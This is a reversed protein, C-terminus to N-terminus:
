ISLPYVNGVKLDPHDPTPKTYVCVVKKLGENYILVDRKNALPMTLFTILWNVSTGSFIVPLKKIPKGDERDKSVLEKIDLDIERLYDEELIGDMDFSFLQAKIAGLYVIEMPKFRLRKGKWISKALKQMAKNLSKDMKEYDEEEMKETPKDLAIRLPSQNQILQVEESLDEFWLPFGREIREEKETVLIPLIPIGKEKARAFEDNCWKTTYTKSVFAIFYDSSDIRPFIVDDLYDGTNLAEEDLWTEIFATQLKNNIIRVLPKNHRNHSLFVKPM